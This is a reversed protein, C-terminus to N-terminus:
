DVSIGLAKVMKGWRDMESHFFATTKDVPGNIFEVGFPKLRRQVDPEQLVKNIETNLKKANADDTGSPVFMGVWSAAYYNPFGNEGFTPVASVFPMRKPTAIGLGRLDGRNIAAIVPSVTVALVHIHDGLLATIAPAGGPFPVHITKVKALVKFLYEAEIYSGTGLGASGFTLPQDKASKILEALNKAPNKPNAAIVEPASVPISVPKLASVAYGPHKYLTANIALQTTTVLVTYGDAATGVVYKAAINGGAGGRNEVVVNQKLRDGLREAIIRAVGDAYGGASAAVVFTIRRSPYEDAAAPRNVSAILLLGALLAFALPAHHSRSM